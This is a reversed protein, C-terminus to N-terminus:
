GCLEQWSKDGCAGHLHAERNMTPRSFLLNIKIYIYKNLERRLLM